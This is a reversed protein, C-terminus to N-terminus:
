FLILYQGYGEVAMKDKPIFRLSASNICYRLYFPAPGDKFLHGLHSDGYRSRVETRVMFFSRDEKKVVFKEDIPKTFSPWGTRSDYKDVSSFLPEGSVIDVYIGEEKLDWYENSFARETGDKQTVKYQLKTLRTKLEPGSPKVYSEFGKNEVVQQSTKTKKLDNVKKKPLTKFDKFKEWTKKLFQDRGSARRYYKYKAASILTRKYYNQHYKEAKYFREFPRIDTVIKDKFPGKKQLEKKSQLAQRKQEENHYFIASSYQHGRDVFQGKADTPDIIRWFIDLVQSYSIKNADYLVQITEIHNTTGSSVEKYTPNKESGGSYGSTVEIVAEYKEFDSEVCWFCGGALTATELSTKNNKMSDEKTKAMSTMPNFIMNLLFLITLKLTM